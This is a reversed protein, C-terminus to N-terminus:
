RQTLEILRIELPELERRLHYNGDMVALTEKHIFPISISKIYNVEEPTGLPMGGSEIWNDYSSGHKRNLITETLLYERADLNKITLHINLAKNFDFAEYRNAVFRNQFRMDIYDRSYHQYHYLLIQIGSESKTIMFGDGKDVFVTGLKNLLKYAYFVPKRIENKTFLGMGGHFTEEPIINEDSFDSLTWMAFDFKGPYNDVVNKVLYVARYMTDALLDWGLYYNWSMINYKKFNWHNGANWKTINTLTNKIAEPNDTLRFASTGLLKKTKRDVRISYLNLNIFDPICQNMKCFEYYDAFWSSNVLTEAMLSPTGIQIDPDISKITQFSNHFLEFFDTSNEFGFPSKLNDPQSWVSFPWDKLTKEGYRNRLHVVLEKIMYNWDRMNKPMGFFSATGWSSAANAAAMAKPMYSLEVVPKLNLTLLFDFVIDIFSFNLSVRGSQEQVYVKMSDDLLGHFNVFDFGIERQAEILLKQTSSFILEKALNVSIIKQFGKSLLSGKAAVDVSQILSQTMIGTSVSANQPNEGLAEKIAETLLPFIETQDFDASRLQSKQNEKHRYQKRYDSPLIQYKRRFADAYARSNAFGSSYAIKELSLLSNSLLPITQNLRIDTIYEFYSMGLLERFIRSIYQPSIFFNDAINQLSLREQSHEAIFKLISELRGIVSSPVISRESDYSAYNAALEFLLETVVSECFLDYYRLTSTDTSLYKALIMKIRKCAPQSDDAACYFRSPLKEILEPSLRDYNIYFIIAEGKAAQISHATYPNTLYLSKEPINIEGSSSESTITGDLQWILELYNGWIFPISEDKLHRAYIIENSQNIYNTLM